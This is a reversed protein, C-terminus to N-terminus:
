GVKLVPVKNFKYADVYDYWNYIKYQEYATVTGDVFMDQNIVRSVYQYVRKVAQISDKYTVCESPNLYGNEDPEILHRELLYKIDERAWDSVKDFDKPMTYDYLDEDWEINDTFFKLFRSLVVYQQEHDIREKLGMHMSYYGDLYYLGKLIGNQYCLEADLYHNNCEDDFLPSEYAIMGRGLGILKKLFYSVVSAYEGRTISTNIDENDFIVNKLNYKEIVEDFYKELRENDSIESLVIQLRPNRNREDYDTLYCIGTDTIVFKTGTGVFISMYKSYGRNDVILGSSPNFEFSSQLDDLIERAAAGYISWKCVNDNDVIEIDAMDYVFLTFGLDLMSYDANASVSLTYMILLLSIFIARIKIM